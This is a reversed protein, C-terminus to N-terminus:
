KFSNDIEYRYLVIAEILLDVKPNKILRQDM